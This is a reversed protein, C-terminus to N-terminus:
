SMDLMCTSLIMPTWKSSDKPALQIHPVCSPSKGFYDNMSQHLRPNSPFNSLPLLFPFCIGFGSNQLLSYCNDTEVPCEAGVCDRGSVCAALRCDDKKRRNLSALDYFLPIVWKLRTIERNRSNVDKKKKKLHLKSVNTNLLRARGKLIHNQPELALVWVVWKRWRM